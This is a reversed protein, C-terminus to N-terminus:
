NSPGAPDGLGRCLYKVYFIPVQGRILFVARLILVKGRFETQFLFGALQVLGVLESNLGKLSGETYGDILHWRREERM